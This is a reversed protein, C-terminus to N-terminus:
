KMNQSDLAYELLKEVLESKNFGTKGKGKGAYKDIRCHNKLIFTLM